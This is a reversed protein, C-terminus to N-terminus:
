ILLFSGSLVQFEMKAYFLRQNLPFKWLIGMFRSWIQNGELFIM